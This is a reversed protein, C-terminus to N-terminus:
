DLVLKSIPAVDALILDPKRHVPVQGSVGSVNPSDSKRWAVMLPSISHASAASAAVTSAAPSAGPSGVPSGAASSSRKSM